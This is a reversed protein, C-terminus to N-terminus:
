NLTSMGARSLLSKIIPATVQLCYIEEVKKRGQKGMKQRLSPQAKLTEIAWLWEEDNSALFGNVGHEVIEVNVGVPSAIVPIGCAMYQILKFGSKGKAWPSDQLPMIGIDFKNIEAVESEESWQKVQINDDILIKKDAGIAVMKIDDLGMYKKTVNSIENLYISTSLSGIWGIIIKDSNNQYEKVSYKELDIVTPIIEVQKAGAKYAREALYSNGAIVLASNKMLKDIKNSLMIKVFPNPHMDYNHFVPEDYEVIYPTSKILLYEILFPIFPMSEFQIWFVNYSEKSALLLILRKVYAYFIVSIKREKKTYLRELYEDDLFPSTELVFGNANLYPIYQTHRYRTGPAKSTFKSLLLVKM